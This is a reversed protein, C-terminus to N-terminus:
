SRGAESKQISTNCIPVVLHRAEFIRETEIQKQSIIAILVDETTSKADVKM